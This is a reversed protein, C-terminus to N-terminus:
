LIPRTGDDLARSLEFWTPCVHFGTRCQDRDRGNKQESQEKCPRGVSGVDFCLQDDVFDRDIRLRRIDRAGSLHADGGPVVPQDDAAKGVGNIGAAQTDGRARSGHAQTADFHLPDDVPVVHAVRLTGQAFPESCQLVLADRELVVDRSRFRLQFEDVRERRQRRVSVALGHEVPKRELARERRNRRAGLARPRLDARGM